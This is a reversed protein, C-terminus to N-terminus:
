NDRFDSFLILDHVQKVFDSHRIFMKKDWGPPKGHHPSHQKSETAGPFVFFQQPGFESVHGGHPGGHCWELVAACCYDILIIYITNCCFPQTNTWWVSGRYSLIWGGFEWLRIEPGRSWSIIRLTQLLLSM